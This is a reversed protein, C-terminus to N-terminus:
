KNKNNDDKYHPVGGFVGSTYMKELNQAVRPQESSFRKITSGQIGNFDVAYIQDPRLLSNSLLNTSHSVLFLQSNLSNEMFYKVLLEELFNHLGSSFEDIILMGGHKVVHFFAPLLRLLKQNGLSELPFPIPEGVGERKFFINKELSSEIRQNFNFHEFFRNIETEGQNELYDELKLSYNGPSFLYEKYGDLYISHMLFDFWKKLTNHNRFKTNFYIERLLLSEGEIDTYLNNDTIESEGNSGIRNLVTHNNIILKEIFMKKNVDYEIFYTILDETIQFEYTLRFSNLESFLCKQLALNIKKEAFLLELLLRLARIANTKGSANAGVFLIGKLNDDFVNSDSLVKYGTAIVDVVTEEKFSWLNKIIVKRLM